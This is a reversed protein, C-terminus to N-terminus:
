WWWIVIAATLLGLAASQHRYNAYWPKQRLSKSEETWISPQWVCCDIQEQKPKETLQSVSVLV